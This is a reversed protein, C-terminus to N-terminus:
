IFQQLSTQESESAHAPAHQCQNVSCTHLVCRAGLRKRRPEYCRFVHPNRDSRANRILNRATKSDRSANPKPCKTRHDSPSLCVPSDSLTGATQSSTLLIAFPIYATDMRLNCFRPFSFLSEPRSSASCLVKFACNGCRTLIISCNCTWVNLWTVM